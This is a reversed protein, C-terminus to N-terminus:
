LSLRRVRADGQPMTSRLPSGARSWAATTSAISSISARVTTTPRGRLREPALPGAAWAASASTAANRWTRSGRPMVTSVASSRKVVTSACRENVAAPRLPRAARETMSLAAAM